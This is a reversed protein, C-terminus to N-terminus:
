VCDWISVGQVKLRYLTVNGHDNVHVAYESDCDAISLNDLDSLDSIQLLEGDRIAEHISDLMPWCGLNSGNGEHMGVYCYPPAYEQLADIGESIIESDWGEWNGQADDPTTAITDLDRLLASDDHDMDRLTSVIASALDESRLTGHSITGISLM